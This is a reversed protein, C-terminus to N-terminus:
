GKNRNIKIIDVILWIAGLVIAGYWYADGSSIVLGYIGMGIM